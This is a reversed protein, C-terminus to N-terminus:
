VSINNLGLFSRTSIVPNRFTVAPANKALLHTRRASLDSDGQSVDASAGSVSQPERRVTSVVMPFSGLMVLAKEVALDEPKAVLVLNRATVTRQDIADRVLHAWNARAAVGDVSNPYETYSDGLAEISIM